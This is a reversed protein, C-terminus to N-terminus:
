RLGARFEAPSQGYRRRFHRALHSANAFGCRGAIEGVGAETQRLLRAAEALRCRIVYAYVSEGFLAPFAEKLLHAGLGASEAIQAVRLPQRANREIFGRAALLARRQRASLRRAGAPQGAADALAPTRLGLLVRHLMQLAICEVHLADLPDAPLGADILAETQARLAADMPLRAVWARARPHPFLELGGHAVPPRGEALLRLHSRFQLIAARFRTHAPIFDIGDFREWSWSLYCHGGAFACPATQGPQGGMAFYGDGAAVLALSLHPGVRTRMALEGQTEGDVVALRLSDGISGYHVGSLAFHTSAAPPDGALPNPLMARTPPPLATPKAMADHYGIGRLHSNKNYVGIM